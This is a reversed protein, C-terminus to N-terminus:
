QMGGLARRVLDLAAVASREQNLHRDGPFRHREVLVRTSDAFGAYVLGVPKEPTGGEPGAIGTVSVGTDAGSLNRIGEAMARATEPSVAGYERIMEEPVGLHQMKAANSYAVIGREFYRSSGPVRTLRHAILGGTCSEAVAVRWGKALLLRGVVDEIEEGDRGYIVGGAQKRLFEEAADLERLANETSVAFVMLRLVVGARRPLFALRVGPFLSDFGHLRDQLGSESINATKLLRSEFVEPPGSGQLRPLVWETLMVRMEASVGPLVFCPVKGLQFAIGPATGVPNPIPEAQEPIEAQVRNSEPLPMDREEFRKRIRDHYEPFFRLPCKLIQAVAYRTRDDGTPGLGGTAIVAQSRRVAESFAGAIEEDRDGTVTVRRVRHGARTLREGIWAANGNVIFGTLLEDGISLIEINM